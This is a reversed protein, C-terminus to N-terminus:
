EVHVQGSLAAQLDAFAKVQSVPLYLDPELVPPHLHLLLHVVPAELGGAPM